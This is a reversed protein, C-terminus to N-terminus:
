PIKREKGIIELFIWPIKEMSTIELDYFKGNQFFKGYRSFAPSKAM